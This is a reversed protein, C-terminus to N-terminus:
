APGGLVDPGYGAAKDLSGESYLDPCLVESGVWREDEERGLIRELEPVLGWM